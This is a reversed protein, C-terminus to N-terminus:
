PHPIDRAGSVGFPQDGYYAHSDHGFIPELDPQAVVEHFPRTVLWELTFGVPHIVYALLRLPNAQSDDYDDAGTQWYIERDVNATTIAPAVPPCPEPAPCPQAVRADHEAREADTWHEYHGASAVRAALVCSAVAAVVVMLKRM